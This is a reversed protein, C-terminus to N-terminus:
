RVVRIQWFYAADVDARRRDQGVRHARVKGALPQALLDLVADLGRQLLELAHGFDSHSAAIDPLDLHIQVQVPDLRDPGARELDRLPDPHLVQIKRRAVERETR